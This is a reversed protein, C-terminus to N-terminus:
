EVGPKSAGRFGAGWYIACERRSKILWFGHGAGAYRVILSAMSREM